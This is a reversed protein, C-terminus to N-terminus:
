EWKYLLTVSKLSIIKPRLNIFIDVPSPTRMYTKYYLTNKQKKKNRLQVSNIIRYQMKTIRM